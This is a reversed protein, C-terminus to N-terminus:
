SHKVVNFDFIHEGERRWYYTNNVCDTFTYGGYAIANIYTTWFRGAAELVSQNNFGKLAVLLENAVRVELEFNRPKGYHELAGPVARADDRKERWDAPLDALAYASLFTYEIGLTGRGADNRVWGLSDHIVWRSREWGQLVIGHNDYGKTRVAGGTYYSGGANVGVLLPGQTLIARKLSDPDTNVRVYGSIKDADKTSVKKAQTQLTPLWDGTYVDPIPMASYTVAGTDKLYNLNGRFTSGNQTGGANVFVHPQSFSKRVGLDKKYKWEAISTTAMSVCLPFKGQAEYTLGGTEYETPIDVEGALVEDLWADRPDFSDAIFGTKEPLPWM